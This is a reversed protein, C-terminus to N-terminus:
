SEIEIIKERANFGSKIRVAKCRFERKILKLLAMNAKGKEPKEQIYAIYCGPEQAKLLKEEKSGPKVKVMIIKTM